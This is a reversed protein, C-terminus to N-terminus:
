LYDYYNSRIYTFNRLINQRGKIAEGHESLLYEADLQSLREISDQLLGDSRNGKSWFSSLPAGNYNLLPFIKGQQVNM